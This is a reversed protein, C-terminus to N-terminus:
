DLKRFLQLGCHPAMHAFDGDTTFLRGKLALTQAAILCDIATAAIGAKACDGHIKAAKLHDDWSAPVIRYGELKDLIQDYDGSKRIGSLLEQGVVGPIALDEDAVVLSRLIAAEKPERGDNKQRRYALSLITTELVIM